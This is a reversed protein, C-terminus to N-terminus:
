KYAFLFALGALVFGIGYWGIKWFGIVGLDQLIFLIGTIVAIIAFVHCLGMDCTPCTCKIDKKAM